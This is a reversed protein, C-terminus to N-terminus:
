VAKKWVIQPFSQPFQAFGTFDLKKRCFLSHFVRDLKKQITKLFIVIRWKACLCLSHQFIRSPFIDPCNIKVGSLGGATVFFAYANKAFPVRLRYNGRAHSRLITPSPAGVDRTLCYVSVIIKEPSRVNCYGEGAPSPPGRLRHILLWQTKVSIMQYDDSFLSVEDTM